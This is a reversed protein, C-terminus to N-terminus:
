LHGCHNQHIERFPKSKIDQIKLYKTRYCAFLCIDGDGLYCCLHMLHYDFHVKQQMIGQPIYLDAQKLEDNGTENNCM